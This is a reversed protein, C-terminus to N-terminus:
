YKDRSQEEARKLFECWQGVGDAIAHALMDLDNETLQDHLKHYQVYNKLPDFAAMFMKQFVEGERTKPFNGFNLKM